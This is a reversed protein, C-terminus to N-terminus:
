ESEDEGGLPVLWYIVGSVIILAIVLWVALLAMSAFSGFTLYKEAAVILAIQIVAFVAVVALSEMTWFRSLEKKCNECKIADNGWLGPRIVSWFSVASGCHPCLRRM